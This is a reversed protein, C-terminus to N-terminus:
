AEQGTAMLNWKSLNANWEFLMSLNKGLVTTTPLAVGAKAVYNTGFSIARATGNDLLRIEMLEGDAPTSTSHNNITIAGALATIHFIDYTDIEPTLSTNSATSYVRPQKRKNTITNTSSVTPVVVGEVALVGASSRSLTTDSANGLEINGTTTITALTPSSANTVINNGEISVVGASVRAITTDSAHGLEINGTTTVTAFTPSDGSKYRLEMQNYVANKSPAHTTDGNWGVGYVTDDISASTLYTSTDISLTGDGGSTKVFGNSTLNSLKTINQTTNVTVTNVTRTLGTSFTLPVEFTSALATAMFTYLSSWTVSKNTGTADMTSDSVDVIM